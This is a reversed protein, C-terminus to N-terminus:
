PSRMFRQWDVAVDNVQATGPTSRGTRVLQELLATMEAVRQPQDAFCSRTEGPDADLDYLQGATSARPEACLDSWPGGGTPGAILKWRGQRLALTGLAGQSVAHVRIPRDEGRLLPLLSVSDEGAGAPLTVDLLEALTAMIDAHHVLQHSVSGPRVAGPWRIIFPVRHGGEWADGKYGRWPGSPFHGRAELQEAGCYPAFGNDSTFLVITQDAIGAHALADLVRGVVADTELVLDAVASDLGSRGRWPQNVALPTHPSTLPLYLLLPTASAAAEAILQCARDALAPLIAELKWAPLAPGGLSALHDTLLAAPLLESPIGVTRDQDLFCYPPWNPVDTGFYVDFGRTTPGGGVPQSFVAQWASRHAETVTAGAQVGSGQPQFYPRQAPTIPWDWGLHWKGVCATRYGRQRALGAITLRDPAILPEEWVSVIGAQLRTRWHYRGTLLTYRSPSCVGSSSHADTFRIGETALRDICTTAIKGRQPNYCKVDGYGLDDACIIVINPWAAEVAVVSRAVVIVLLMLSIRVM